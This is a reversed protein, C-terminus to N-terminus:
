SYVPQSILTKKMRVLGNDKKERLEWGNKEYFAIARGNLYHVNLFIAKCGGESALQITRKAILDSAETGRIEPILYCFDLWANEPKKLVPFTCIYGVPESNLYLVSAFERDRSQIQRVAEFYYKRELAIDVYTDPTVKKAEVLWKLVFEIDTSEEFPRFEFKRCM